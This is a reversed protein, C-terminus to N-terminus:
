SSWGPSLAPQCSWGLLVGDVPRFRRAIVGLDLGVLRPHGLARSVVSNSAWAEPTTAPLLPAPLLGAEGEGGAGM